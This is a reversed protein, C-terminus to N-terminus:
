DQFFGVATGCADGPAVWLGGDPGDRTDVGNRKLLARTAALDNVRFGIGGPCPVAPAAAGASRRAWAAPSAIWVSGRALTIRWRPTAAPGAPAAVVNWRTHATSLRGALHPTLVIAAHPPSPVTLSTADISAKVCVRIAIM